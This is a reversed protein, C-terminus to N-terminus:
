RSFIEGTGQQLVPEYRAQLDCHTKQLHWSTGGSADGPPNAHSQAGRAMAPLWRITVAGM